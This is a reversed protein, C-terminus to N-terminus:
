NCLANRHANGHANGHVNRDANRDGNWETSHPIFHPNSHLFFHPVLSQELLLRWCKGSSFRGSQYVNQQLSVKGIMCTRNAVINVLCVSFNVPWHGASIELRSVDAVHTFTLSLDIQALKTLDIWLYICLKWVHWVLSMMCTVWIVYFTIVWSLIVFSCATFIM